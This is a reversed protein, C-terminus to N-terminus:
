PKIKHKWTAMFLEELLRYCPRTRGMEWNIATDESVDYRTAMEKRTICLSNKRYKRVLASLIRSKTKGYSKDQLIAM